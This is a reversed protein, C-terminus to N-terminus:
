VMVAAIEANLTVNFIEQPFDCLVISGILAAVAVVAGLRDHPLLGPPPEPLLHCPPLEISFMEAQTRLSTEYDDTLNMEDTLNM